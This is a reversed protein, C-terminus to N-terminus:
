LYRAPQAASNRNGITTGFGASAWNMARAFDSGTSSVRASEAVRARCSMPIGAPSETISKRSRAM